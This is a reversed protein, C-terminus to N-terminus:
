DILGHLRLATELALIRQRAQQLGTALAAVESQTYTAGVTYSQNLTSLNILLDTEARDVDRQSLKSYSTQEM